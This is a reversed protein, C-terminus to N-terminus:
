LLGRARRYNTAVAEPWMGNVGELMSTLWENTGNHDWETAGQADLFAFWEDPHRGTAELIEKDSPVDTM